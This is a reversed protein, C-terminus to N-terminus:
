GSFPKYEDEKYQDPTEDDRREGPWETTMDPILYERVSEMLKQAQPRRRSTPALIPLGGHAAARMTTWLSEKERGVAYRRHALIRRRSEHKHDRARDESVKALRIRRVLKGRIGSLTRNNYTRHAYHFRYVGHTARTTATAPRTSPHSRFCRPNRGERKTAIASSKPLHKVTGVSQRLRSHYRIRQGTRQDRRVALPIKRMNARLRSIRRLRTFIQEVKRITPSPIPPDNPPPHDEDRGRITAAATSTSSQDLNEIKVDAEGTKDERAAQLLRGREKREEASLKSTVSQWRIPM